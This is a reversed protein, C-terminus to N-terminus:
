KNKTRIKLRTIHIVSYIYLSIQGRLWKKTYLEMANLVNVKHAKTDIVRKMKCLQSEASMLCSGIGGM